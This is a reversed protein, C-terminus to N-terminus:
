EPSPNTTAIHSFLPVRSRLRKCLDADNAFLLHEESFFIGVTEATILEACLLGLFVYMVSRPEGIPVGGPCACEISSYGAHNAWRPLEMDGLEAPGLRREFHRIGYFVDRVKLVAGDGDFISLAFFKQADYQQRWARQMSLNLRDTSFRELHRQLLLISIGSVPPKKKAFFRDLM